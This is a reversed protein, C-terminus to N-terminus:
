RLRKQFRLSTWKEKIEKGLSRINSGKRLRYNCAERQKRVNTTATIDRFWVSSQIEKM